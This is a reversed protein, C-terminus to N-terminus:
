FHGTIKFHAVYLSTRWRWTQCFCRKYCNNGRAPRSSIMEPMELVLIEPLLQQLLGKGGKTGLSSSGTVISFQQALDDSWYLAAEHIKICGNWTSNLIVTLFTISTSSQLSSYPKFIWSPLDYHINPFFDLCFFVIFFICVLINVHLAIM